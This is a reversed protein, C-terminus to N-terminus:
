QLELYPKINELINKLGDALMKRNTLIKEAKKYSPKSGHAMSNRLTNLTIYDDKPWNRKSLENETNKIEECAEERLKPNNADRQTELCYHTILAELGLICTRLYDRRKLASEALRYQRHSLKDSNIWNLHKKLQAQFLSSAGQLPHTLASSVTQLSRAASATQNTNQYYAAESLCHAIDKDLGDAILLSEFVGYDGSASFRDLASIWQRVTNLGDLRIVQTRNNQSMELAGYWLAAIKLQPRLDELLAASLFGIIALHRFGHTVDIHLDTRQTDLDLTHAITQLIGIQEEDDIGSPIIRLIINKYPLSRQLFPTIQDLLDQTVRNGERASMLELRLNEQDKLHEVHKDSFVDWMSGATGLLILTDPKLHEALALGIYTTALETKGELVYTTPDYGVEANGRGKGLITILTKHM